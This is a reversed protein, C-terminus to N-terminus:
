AVKAERAVVPVVGALAATFRKVIEGVEDATVNYAPAIIVHDGKHGDVTGTMPYIMLGMRMAENKFRNALDVQPPFPMKAERDAVFEVALFLGRGRIDGVCPDDGIAAILAAKLEAGRRNVNELLNEEAIAELVALGAACGAAHNVYTQGHRYRGSREALTEDITRSLLMAGLPQYGGGLGKALTVIDPAVGEQECAFLSGTRGTGCMIEDLILLVGYRDCIERIRTFYGPVAPVAGLTAGVVTEAIFAAVREPREALIVAELEGATREAYEDVAENPRQERYAYCPAIFAARSLMPEYLERRGAHGSVSLAGLTNGHYSQRRAVFLCRNPEGREVFYQRALKMAAENAESGGQLFFAKAIGRPAAAVLRDALAEAPENRFFGYHIFPVARLQREVAGLVRPHNHGLCSVAAGGCADLYECGDSDIIWSGRGSAAM